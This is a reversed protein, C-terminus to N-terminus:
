RDHTECKRCTRHQGGIELGFTSVNLFDTQTYPHVGFISCCHRAKRDQCLFIIGEIMIIINWYFAIEAQLINKQFPYTLPFQGQKNQSM